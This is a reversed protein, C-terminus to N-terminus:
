RRSLLHLLLTLLVSLVLSTVIPAYLTWGDKRIVIDGPLRGLFPIKGGLVFVLGLGTLILGSVLLIRGVERLGPESM